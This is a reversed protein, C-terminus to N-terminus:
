CTVLSRLLKGQQQKVFDRCMGGVEELCAVADTIRGGTIGGQLVSASGVSCFVRSAAAAPPVVPKAQEMWDGTGSLGGVLLWSDADGGGFGQGQHHRLRATSTGGQGVPQAIHATSSAGADVCSSMRNLM